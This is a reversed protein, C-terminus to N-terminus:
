PFPRRPKRGQNGRCLLVDALGHGVIVIPFLQGLSEVMMDVQLELLQAFNRLCVLLLLLLVRCLLHLQLLRRGVLLPIAGRM